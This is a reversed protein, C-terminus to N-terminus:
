NMKQNIDIIIIISLQKLLFNKIYNNIADPFFDKCDIAVMIYKSDFNPLQPQKSNDRNGNYNTPM